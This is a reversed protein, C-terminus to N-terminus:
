HPRVESFADLLGDLEPRVWWVNGDHRVWQQTERIRKELFSSLGTSGAWWRKLGTPFATDRNRFMTGRGILLHIERQPNARTLTYATDMATKGGGVVYVPSDDALM